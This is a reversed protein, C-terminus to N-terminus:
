EEQSEIGLFPFFGLQLSTATTDCIAFSANVTGGLSHFAMKSM